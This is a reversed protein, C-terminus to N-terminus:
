FLEISDDGLTHCSIVDNSDTEIVLIMRDSPAESAAFVGYLSILDNSKRITQWGARADQLDVKCIRKVSGLFFEVVFNDDNTNRM